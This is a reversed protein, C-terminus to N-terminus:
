AGPRHLCHDYYSFVNDVTVSAFSSLADVLLPEHAHRHIRMHRKVQSFVLECPNLEPSYTPLFLLRVGSALLLANLPVAIDSSYHISANDLVLVDNMVLAASDCLFLLFDWATNSSTRPLSMVLGDPSTLSTMITISYSGKRAMVGEQM